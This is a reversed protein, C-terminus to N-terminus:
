KGRREFFDIIKEAKKYSEGMKEEEVSVSAYRVMECEDFLEKIDDIIDVSMGKQQVINKLTAVTVAGPQVHLRNGFYDQITKFLADYFANQAKQSLFKRCRALGKKAHKPAMLRRAFVQDTKIRHTIKYWVFLGVWSMFVLFVSCAFIANKYLRSGKRYFKGPLEKIFVIDKGLTEKEVYLLGDNFSLGVVKLEQGEEMEAVSIPFPGKTVVKYEGNSVDFYSFEVEPVSAVNHRRPILVQEVVKEDRTQSIQPDYMKFDENEKFVPLNVADINGEGSVKMKVTIPDGVKVVKPSVTIDFNFNGVAGSFEEPRGQQPLSMVKVPLSSSEISISRTDYANFFGGFFDDDFVGGFGSFTRRKRNTNKFVVDCTEKAPGLVLDGTRTPYANVNFEVIDYRVGSSIAQYTKPEQYEDVFFGVHALDPYQINRVSLGSIFLRVTLSIKENLYYQTKDTTLVLIIKEKLSTPASSASGAATSQSTVVRVNIPNSTYGKGDIEIKLSPIQYQGVKDPYLNYLFSINSSYKGNVISVRKSPGVYRSQFGDIEPLDVPEASQTGSVSLTLQLFSGIAVSSRDVTADFAIDEAWSNTSVIFLVSFCFAFFIIRFFHKKM